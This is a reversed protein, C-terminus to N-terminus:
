TGVAKVNLFHIHHESQTYTNQVIECCVVVKAKCLMRLNTEYLRPQPHKSRPLCQTRVHLLCM